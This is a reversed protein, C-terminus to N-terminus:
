IAEHYHIKVSAYNRLNIEIFPQSFASLPHNESSAVCKILSNLNDNLLERESFFHLKIMIKHLNRLFELGDMSVSAHFINSQITVTRVDVVQLM